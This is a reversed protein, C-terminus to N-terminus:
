LCGDRDALPHREGEIEIGIKFREGRAPRDLEEPHCAVVAACAGNCLKGFHADAIHLNSLDIIGDGEPRACLVEEEEIGGFIGRRVSIECRAAALDRRANGFGNLFVACDAEAEAFARFAPRMDFERCVPVHEFAAVGDCHRHIHLTRGRAREGDALPRVPSIPDDLAFEGDILPHFELHVGFHQTGDIIPRGGVADFVGIKQPEGIRAAPEYGFHPDCPETHAVFRGDGECLAANRHFIRRTLGEFRAFGLEVCPETDNGLFTVGVLKRDFPAVGDEFLPFIVGDGILISGDGEDVGFRAFVGEHEFAVATKFAALKGDGHLLLFVGDGDGVRLPPAHDASGKLQRRCRQAARRLANGDLPAVCHALVTFIVGHRVAFERGICFPFVGDSIGRGVSAPSIRAFLLDFDVGVLDHEVAIRRAARRPQQVGDAISGEDVIRAFFHFAADPPRVRQAIATVFVGDAAGERGSKCADIRQFVGCRVRALRIRRFDADGDVADRGIRIFHFGEVISRREGIDGDGICSRDGPAFRVANDDVDRLTRAAIPHIEGERCPLM